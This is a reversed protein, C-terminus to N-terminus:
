GTFAQRRVCSYMYMRSGVTGGGAFDREFLVIPPIHIYAEWFFVFCLLCLGKREKAERYGRVELGLRVLCVSIWVMCAVLATASM